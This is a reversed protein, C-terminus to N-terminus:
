DDEADDSEDDDDADDDVDGADDDDYSAADDGYIDDDVDDDMVDDEYGADDDDAIPLPPAVTPPVTVSPATDQTPLPLSHTSEVTATTEVSPTSTATPSSTAQQTSTDATEKSWHEIRVTITPGTEAYRNLAERFELGYVQFIQDDATDLQLLVEGEDNLFGQETARDLLDLTVILKDKGRADYGRILRRGDENNGSLDIVEGAANVDMRVAPNITMYISAQITTDFPNATILRWGFFLLLAAAIGVLTGIVPTRVSRRQTRKAPRMIVPDTIKEGVEYGLNAAKYFRGEEDVIIVISPYVDLVLYIM